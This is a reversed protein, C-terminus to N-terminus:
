NAEIVQALVGEKLSYTSQIIGQVNSLSVVYKTFISAMVITDVRLAEFGPILLREERTTTTMLKYLETFNELSIPYNILAKSIPYGKQRYYNMAAYTDFAGSSGVLRTVPYDKLANELPQLEKKIYQTVQEIEAASIPDGPHFMDFLRAGGLKFSQKWLMGKNSAIILENSGGGIDLILYNEDTFTIAQKVGYYIFDAEQEGSITEIQINFDRAIKDIFQNSNSAGRIASTGYALVRQCRFEKILQSFDRLVAYARTFAKDSIYGENIGEQGLMVASKTNLLVEFDKERDIEAILINFTNTGLDIIGTRM